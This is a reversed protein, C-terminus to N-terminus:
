GSFHLKEQVTKALANLIADSDKVHWVCENSDIMLFVGFSVM